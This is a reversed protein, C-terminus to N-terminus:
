SGFSTELKGGTTRQPCSCGNTSSAGTNDPTQGSRVNEVLGPKRSALVEVVSVLLNRNLRSLHPLYGPVCNGLSKSFAPMNSFTEGSAATM